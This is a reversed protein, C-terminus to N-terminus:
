QPIGLLSEEEEAVLVTGTILLLTRHAANVNRKGLSKTTIGNPTLTTSKEEVVSFEQPFADLLIAHEAELAVVCKTFDPEADPEVDGPKMVAAHLRLRKLDDFLVPKLVLRTPPSYLGDILELEQGNFLTVKPSAKTQCVSALLKAEKRTLLGLRLLPAEALPNPGPLPFLFRGTPSEPLALVHAPSAPGPLPYNQLDVDLKQLREWFDNPVTWTEIQLVAQTHQQRRLQELMKRIEEHVDQTQRVVLSLTSDNAKIQGGGGVEAWTNPQCTSIILDTIGQLQLKTTKARDESEPAASDPQRDPKPADSTVGRNPNLKVVVRKPVVRKPVPVVLDAVSYTALIAPGKLRQQSTVVIVGSEEVRYGLKLPDLLLTLASGLKVQDVALTVFEKDTLGEDELGRKEIVINCGTSQSLQKMADKLSVHDFNTSVLKEVRLNAAVPQAKWDYKSPREVPQVAAKAQGDSAAAGHDPEVIKASLTAILRTGKEGPEGIPGFFVPENPTMMLDLQIAQSMLMPLGTQAGVNNENGLGLSSGSLTMSIHLVSPHIVKPKATLLLGLGPFTTVAGKTGSVGIVTPNAVEGHSSYGATRGNLTTISPNSLVRIRKEREMATLKAIVAQDTHVQALAGLHRNGSVTKGRGTKFCLENLADEDAEYITFSMLIQQESSPTYPVYVEPAPHAPPSTSWPESVITGTVGAYSNVGVGRRNSPGPVNRPTPEPQQPAEDLVVLCAQMMVLMVDQSDANPVKTIPFVLHQAHKLEVTTNTRQVDLGPILKDEGTTQYHVKVASDNNLRSLENVVHLRLSDIGVSQPQMTLRWGYERSQEILTTTGDAATSEVPVAFTATDAISVSKRGRGTAVPHSILNLRPFAQADELLRLM